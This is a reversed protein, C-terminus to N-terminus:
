QRMEFEINTFDVMCLLLSIEIPQLRPLFVRIDHVFESLGSPPVPYGPFEDM